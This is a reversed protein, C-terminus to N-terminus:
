LISCCEVLVAGIVLSLLQSHPVPATLACRYLRALESVITLSISVTLRFAKACLVVWHCATLLLRLPCEVFLQWRLAEGVHIHGYSDDKGEFYVALIQGDQNSYPQVPVETPAANVLREVPSDDHGLDVVMARAVRFFLDSIFLVDMWVEMNKFIRFKGALHTSVEEGLSIRWSPEHHQLIQSIVALPLLM